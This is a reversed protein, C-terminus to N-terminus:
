DTKEYTLLFNLFVWSRKLELRTMGSGVIRTMRLAIARLIGEFLDKAVSLIVFLPLGDNGVGIPFRMYFSLVFLDGSKNTFIETGRLM